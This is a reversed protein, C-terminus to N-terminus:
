KGMKKKLAALDASLEKETPRARPPSPATATRTPAAAPQKEDVPIDHGCEECVMRRQRAGALEVFFVELKDTANAEYFSTLKECEDCRRQERRGNPVAGFRTSVGWLVM